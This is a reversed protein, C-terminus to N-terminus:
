IVLRHVETVRGEVLTREVFQFGSKALVNRSAGNAPDIFALLEGHWERRAVELVVGAAETAYGMGRAERVLRYGFELRTEGRFQFEDVGVYGLSAGTSPDIIVRKAFGLEGSFALMHDFRATAAEPDLPGTATYIMFDPDMFLGVYWPRDSEVVPRITLRDTSIAGDSTM